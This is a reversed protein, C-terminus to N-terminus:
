TREAVVPSSRQGPLAVRIVLVSRDGAELALDPPTTVQGSSSRRVDHRGHSQGHTDAHLRERGNHIARYHCPRRPRHHRPRAAYTHPRRLTLGTESVGLKNALAAPGRCGDSPIRLGEAPSRHGLDQVHPHLSSKRRSPQGTTMDRWCPLLRHTPSEPPIHLYRGLEHQLTM